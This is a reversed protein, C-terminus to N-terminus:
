IPPGLSCGLVKAWALVASTCLCRFDRPIRWSRSVGRPVPQHDESGAMPRTASPTAALTSLSLARPFPCTGSHAAVAHRIRVSLYIFALLVFLWAARCRLSLWRGTPLLSDLVLGRCPCHLCSDRM